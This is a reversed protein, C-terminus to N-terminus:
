EHYTASLQKKLAEIEIGAQCDNHSAEAFAVRVLKLEQEAKEARAQADALRSRLAPFANHIAVAFEEDAVLQSAVAPKEMGVKHLGPTAKQYLGELEKLQEDSLETSM